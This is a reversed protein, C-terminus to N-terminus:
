EENSFCLVEGWTCLKAVVLYLQASLLFTAADICLYIPVMAACQLFYLYQKQWCMLLLHFSNPLTRIDLLTFHLLPLKFAIKSLKSTKTSNQDIFWHEFLIDLQRGTQISMLTHKHQHQSINATGLLDVPEQRGYACWQWLLHQPPHLQKQRWTGKWNRKNLCETQMFDKIIVM